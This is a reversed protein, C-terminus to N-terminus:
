LPSRYNKKSIGMKDEYRKISAVIRENLERTTGVALLEYDSNRSMKRQFRMIKDGGELTRVLVEVLSEVNSVGNRSVYGYTIMKGVGLAPLDQLLKKTGTAEENM